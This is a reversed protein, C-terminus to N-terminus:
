PAGYKKLLYALQQREGNETVEAITRERAPRSMEAEDVDVVSITIRDGVKLSRELWEVSGQIGEDSRRLGNVSLRLDTPTEDAPQYRRDRVMSGAFVSLVHQGSLGATVAEDRNLEVRFAIM